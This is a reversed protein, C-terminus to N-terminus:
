RIWWDRSNKPDVIESLLKDSKLANCKQGCIPCPHGHIPALNAPDTPHGGRSVPIIHDLSDAGPHGCLHCIDNQALARVKAKRYATSELEPRDM